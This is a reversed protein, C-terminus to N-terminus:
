VHQKEPHIRDDERDARLAACQCAADAIVMGDHKGRVPSKADTAVKMEHCILIAHDQELRFVEGPCSVGGTQCGMFGGNNLRDSLTANDM